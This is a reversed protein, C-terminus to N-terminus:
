FNGEIKAGLFWFVTVRVSFKRLFRLTKGHYTWLHYQRGLGSNFKSVLYRLVCVELYLDSISVEKRYRKQLYFILAEGGDLFM